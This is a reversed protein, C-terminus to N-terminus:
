KVIDYLNQAYNAYEGYDGLVNDMANDMLFQKPGGLFGFLSEKFMGFLLALITVTMIKGAEIVTENGRCFQEMKNNNIINLLAYSGIGVFSTILSNIIFDLFGSGITNIRGSIFKSVIFSSALTILSAIMSESIIRTYSQEIQKQKCIDTNRNKLAISFSLSTIFLMLLGVGGLMMFGANPNKSNFISEGIVVMLIFGIILYVYKDLPQEGEGKKVFGMYNLWTVIFNFPPISFIPILLWPRHLSWNQHLARTIYPGIIPILGLLVKPFSISDAKNFGFDLSSFPNFISPSSFM